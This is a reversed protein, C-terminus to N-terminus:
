ESEEIEELAADLATKMVEAEELMGKHVILIRGQEEAAYLPTSQSTDVVYMEGENLNPGVMIEAPRGLLRIAERLVQAQRILAAQSSNHLPMQRDQLISPLSADRIDVMDM